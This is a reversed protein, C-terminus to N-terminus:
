EDEARRPDREKCVRVFDDASPLDDLKFKCALRIPYYQGSLGRHDKEYEVAAFREGTPVGKQNFGRYVELEGADLDVVYAWECFLSDGAFAYGDLLVIEDAESDLVLDLIGAGHDHSWLPFTRKYEAAQDMDMWGGEIGRSKAWEEYAREDREDAYRCRKLKEVLRLLLERDALKRCFELVTVGQGEPYYDWQGYQAIKHQGDVVVVTLGRTGM